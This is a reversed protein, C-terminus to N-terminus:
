RDWQPVHPSPAPQGRGNPTFEGARRLWNRWTASWDARPEGKGRWHDIFRPLERRAATDTIGEQRQWAIDAETPKWDDRIQARRKQARGVSPPSNPAPAPATTPSPGVSPSVSPNSEQFPPSASPSDSPTGSARVSPNFSPATSPDISRKSLLDSLESWGKMAPRDAHLRVLEHVIVGRLLISSIAAHAKRVAVAMNPSGLLEDNRIFSRILVEETSEDIVIYRQDSLEKAAIEIDEVTWGRTFGVLKSPRWDTVGAYDLKPHIMLVYYLHQAALSLDRHDDDEWISLKVRAHERAM